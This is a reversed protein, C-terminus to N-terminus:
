SCPSSIIAPMSSHIFTSLTFSLILLGPFLHCCKTNSPPCHLHLSISLSTHCTVSCTLSDSRDTGFVYVHKPYVLIASSSLWLSISMHWSKACQTRLTSSHILSCRKISTSATCYWHYWYYCNSWKCNKGLAHTVLDVGKCVCLYRSALVGEEFTNM